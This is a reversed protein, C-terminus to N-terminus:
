QNTLPAGSSSVLSPTEVKMIPGVAEQDINRLYKEYDFADHNVAFQKIFAIQEDHEMIKHEIQYNMLVRETAYFSDAESADSAKKQTRKPIKIMQGQDDLLPVHQFNERSTKSLVLMMTLKIDYIVESFPCDDTVPMMRFTDVGEWVGKHLWMNQGIGEVPTFDIM